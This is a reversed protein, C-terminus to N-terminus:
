IYSAHSNENYKCIYILSVSAYVCLSIYTCSLQVVITLNNSNSYTLHKASASVEPVRTHCSIIVVDGM